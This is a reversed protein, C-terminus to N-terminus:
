SSPAVLSGTRIGPIARIILPRAVQQLIEITYHDFSWTIILAHLVDIDQGAFFAAVREMSALDKVAEPADVVDLGADRLAANIQGFQIEWNEWGEEDPEYVAYSGIRPTVM